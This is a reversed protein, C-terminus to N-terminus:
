VAGSCASLGEERATSPKTVRQITTKRTINPAVIAEQSTQDNKAQM